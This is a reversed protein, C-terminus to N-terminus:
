RIRYNKGVFVDILKASKMYKNSDDFPVYHIKPFLTKIYSTVNKFNFKSEHLINLRHGINRTGYFGCLFGIEFLVADMRAKRHFFAIVLVPDYDKLIREYKEDIGTDNRIDKIDEMIVIDKLKYEYDKILEDRVKKRYNLHVRGPGLLLVIARKQKPISLECV